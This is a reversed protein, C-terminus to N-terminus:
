FLKIQSKVKEKRYHFILNEVDSRMYKLHHINVEEKGDENAHRIHCLITGRYTLGFKETLYAYLSLQLSYLNGKSYQLLNLPYKFYQNTNIFNSTSFGKSDKEFYGSEYRLPDKNTKWDLIIFNGDKVLLLDILGSILYDKNYTGIEPYMYYGENAAFAIINYISPYKDKVGLKIFYDLDVRGHDPNDIIDDITYLRGSTYTSKINYFGNSKKISTELYDHKHNGIAIAKDTDRKWKAILDNASLGAYKPNKKKGSAECAKAMKYTEFKIGYKSLLTTVSVYENNESDTYKHQEVNFFIHVPKTM